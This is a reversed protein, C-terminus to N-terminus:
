QFSFMEFLSLNSAQSGYPMGISDFAQISKGASTVLSYCFHECDSLVHVTEMSATVKHQFIKRILTNRPASLLPKIRIVAPM